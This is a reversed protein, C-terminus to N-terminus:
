FRTSSYFSSPPPYGLPSVLIPLGAVLGRFTRCCTQWQPRTEKDRHLRLDSGNLGTLADSKHAGAQSEVARTRDTEHIRPQGLIPIGSRNRRGELARGHVYGAQLGKWNAPNIQWRGNADAEYHARWLASLAQGSSQLSSLRISMSAPIPRM